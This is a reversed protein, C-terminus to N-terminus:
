MEILRQQLGKHVAEARSAADLKRLLAEVHFKVTHQSIGLQRAVAKNSLGNGIAALVEVERPTLLNQEPEAAVQFAPRPVEVPRVSLGAAVARIAADIQEASADGPLLGPETTDTGGLIVAPPGTGPAIGDALVVDSQDPAESIGHGAAAVIAALGARRVPDAAAITVRLVRRSAPQAVTNSM